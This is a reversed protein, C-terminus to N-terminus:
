FGKLSVIKNKVAKECNKVTQLVTFIRTHYSLIIAQNRKSTQRFKNFVYFITQSKLVRKLQEGSTQFYKATSQTSSVLEGKSDQRSFNFAVKWFTEM